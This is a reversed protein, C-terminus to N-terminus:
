RTVLPLFLKLLQFEYAGMDVVPAPGIGTVPMGRWSIILLALGLLVSAALAASRQWISLNPLTTPM